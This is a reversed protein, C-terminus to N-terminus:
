NEEFILAEQELWIIRDIIWSSIEAVKSAELDLAEAIQGIFTGELDSFDEDTYALILMYKIIEMALRRNKIQSVYKICEKDSLSFYRPSFDLGLEKALDNLFSKETSHLHNDIKALTCLVALLISKEKVTLNDLYNKNELTKKM